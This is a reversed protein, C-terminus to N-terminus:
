EFSMSSRNQEIHQEVIPLLATHYLALMPEWCDGRYAIARASDTDLCVLLPTIWDQTPQVLDCSALLVWGPGISNLRHNLAASLGGIPGVGHPRDTIATYGLHKYREYAGTVLTARDHQNAPEPWLRASLGEIVRRVLPVGDVEALAKDSGFRSSAGGALVYLRPYENDPANMM